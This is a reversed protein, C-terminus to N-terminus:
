CSPSGPQWRCHRQSRNATRSNAAPSRPSCDRGPSRASSSRYGPKSATASKTPSRRPRAERSLRSRTASRSSSDRSEARRPSWTGRGCSARRSCTSCTCTRPTSGTTSRSSTNSCRSSTSPALIPDEAFARANFITAPSLGLSPAAIVSRLDAQLRENNLKQEAEKVYYPEAGTVALWEIKIKRPEKLGPAERGQNPEDNRYKDFMEKLEALVAKDNENPDPISPVYNIAPVPIAVYTTPSCKDRYFEFQEYPTSFAPFGGYTKDGRRGLVDPGLVAVQAMRVRFEEGVAEICRSLNFGSLSKQLEKQVFVQSEGQFFSYFEKDILKKIDDTTFKIGLQDAKKQWLLFNVLDRSTSNPANGFYQQEGGSFLISQMLTMSALKVRIVDKDGAKLNPLNLLRTLESRMQPLMQPLFMAALQPNESFQRESRIIQGMTMQVEPSLGAAQEEVYSDLRHRTHLAGQTMYRNAMVRNFRLKELEGSYVKSGDISCMVDGKQSKQGLWRPLWDFFDAGGGLGSSLVFTFMIFVTVVAFIAKQNRRFINFPNYAM